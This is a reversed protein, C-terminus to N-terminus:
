FRPPLTGPKVIRSLAFTPWERTHAISMKPSPDQAAFCYVPPVARSGILDLSDTYARMPVRLRDSMNQLFDTNSGVKCTLLRVEEVAPTLATFFDGLATMAHLKPVVNDPLTAQVTQPLGWGIQVEDMDLRWHYFGRADPNKRDEPVLNTWAVTQKNSQPDLEGGADGHGVAVGIIGGNAMVAAKQFADIYPELDAAVIPSNLPKKDLAMPVLGRTAPAWDLWQKAWVRVVNALNDNAAASAAIIMVDMKYYVHLLSTGKRTLGDAPDKIDIRLDFRGGEPRDDPLKCSKQIGEGVLINIQVLRNANHCTISPQRYDKPYFKKSRFDGPVVMITREGNKESGPKDPDDVEIISVEVDKANDAPNTFVVDVNDGNEAINVQKGDNGRYFADISAM